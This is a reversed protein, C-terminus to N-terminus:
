PLYVDVIRNFEEIWGIQTFEYQRLWYKIIMCLDNYDVPIPRYIEIVKEQPKLLMKHVEFAM